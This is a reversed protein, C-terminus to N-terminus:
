ALAGETDQRHGPRPPPACAPPPSTYLPGCRVGLREVALACAATVTGALPEGRFTDTLPRFRLRDGVASRETAVTADPSEGPRAARLPGADGHRLALVAGPAAPADLGIKAESFPAVELADMVQRELEAPRADFHEGERLMRAVFNLMLDPRTRDINLGSGMRANVETPLFGDPGLVGDLTFAGRYGYLDRLARGVSRATARISDHAPQPCTWHTSTGAFVFAGGPRRLTLLELPRLVVVDGPLVLGHVSCPLGELYPMVRVRHCRGTFETALPGPDAGPALWRTGRAGTHLGDRADAALVTGA